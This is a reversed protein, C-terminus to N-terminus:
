ESTTSKAIFFRDGKGNPRVTDWEFGYKSALEKWIDNAKEQRSRGLPIGGSIYMVPDSKLSLISELEEQTMEFEKM